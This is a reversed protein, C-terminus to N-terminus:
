RDVPDRIPLSTQAPYQVVIASIDDPKARLTDRQLSRRYATNVLCQAGSEETACLIEEIEQDILNDHLGDTCLLIRDGPHLPLSRTPIFPFDTWGIACTIKNRRDFHSLDDPSLDNALEAQEIRLAEAETLKQHRVAFPFYGHDKTLRLLAQGERLLYVRSDGIHAITAYTLDQHVSLVCLAATTAPRKQEAPIPLAAITTDAQQLLTQLVCALQEPPAKRETEALAQWCAMITMEALHSVLRGQDRGGVSDFVGLLGDTVLLADESQCGQDRPQNASDIRFSAIVNDIM